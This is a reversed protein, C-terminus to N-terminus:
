RAYVHEPTLFPLLGKPDFGSDPHPVTWLPSWAGARELRAEVKSRDEHPLKGVKHQLQALAFVRYRHVPLRYRAGQVTLAFTKKRDLFAQANAALYPLYAEGIDTLIPDLDAPVEEPCAGPLSSARAAWM